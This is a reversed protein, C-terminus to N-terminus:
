IPVHKLGRTPTRTKNKRNELTIRLPPSMPFPIVYRHLVGERATRIPRRRQSTSGMRIAGTLCLILPVGLPAVPVCSITPMSELFVSRLEAGTIRWRM